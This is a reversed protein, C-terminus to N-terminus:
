AEERFLAQVTLDREPMVDPLNEWSVFIKGAVEPDDPPTIKAGPALSVWAFKKGGAMFTVKNKKRRFKGEVKVNHAPMTEPLRKWGGFTANDRPEVKPAEVPAGFTLEKTEYVEGDLLFTITYTNATFSGKIRLDKDPMTEPLKGWGSFTHNQREPEVIFSLPTGYEVEREFVMGDIEFSLLYTNVKFSGRLTLNSRPMKKYKKVWGSFTCGRKKPTPFDSLDAGSSYEATRWVEDDVLATLTYQDAIYSGEVVVDEEPMIEPLGQWGAFDFGEKEEVQPSPPTVGSEVSDTRVVTGDIKFTLNYLAM